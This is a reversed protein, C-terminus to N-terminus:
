RPGAQPSPHSKPLAVWPEAGNMKGIYTQTYAGVADNAKVCYGELCGLADVLKGAEMSPPNSGLEAFTAWNFEEDKVNDGLYVSRGKFKRLGDGADHGHNMGM